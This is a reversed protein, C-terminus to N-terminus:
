RQAGIETLIVPRLPTFRREAHVLRRDALQATLYQTVLVPQLPVHVRRRRTVNALVRQRRAAAVIALVITYAFALLFVRLRVVFTAFRVAIADFPVPLRALRVALLLFRDPMVRRMVRVQTMSYPSRHLGIRRRTPLNNYDKLRTNKDLLHSPVRLFLPPLPSSFFFQYHRALIVFITNLCKIKISSLSNQM